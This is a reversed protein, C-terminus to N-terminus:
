KCVCSLDYGVRSLKTINMNKVVINYILEKWVICDCYKFKMCAESTSRVMGDYWAIFTPAFIIVFSIPNFFWTFPKRLM